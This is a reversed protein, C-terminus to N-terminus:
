GGFQLINEPDDQADVQNRILEVQSILLEDGSVVKTHWDGCSGCVLRAPLADTIQGCKRCSVRVPLSDILLQAESAISGARAVDFAQELLQPEVGSLPGIGLHIVVVQVANEERAIAEVQDILEQCVSLEHM